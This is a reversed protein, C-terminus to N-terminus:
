HHQCCMSTQAGSQLVKSKREVHVRIMNRSNGTITTYEAYKLNSDEGLRPDSNNTYLTLLLLSHASSPPEPTWCQLPPPTVALGFQRPDKKSFTWYGTAMHPVCAWRTLNKELCSWPLSQISHKASIWLCYESLSTTIKLHANWLPVTRRM